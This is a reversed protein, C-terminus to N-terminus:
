LLARQLMRYTILTPQEDAKQWYFGREDHHLAAVRDVHDLLDTLRFTPNILTFSTIWDTLSKPLDTESGQSWVHIESAVICLQEIQLSSPGGLALVLDALDDDDLQVVPLIGLAKEELTQAVNTGLLKVTAHGLRYEVTNMKIEPKVVADYAKNLARIFMYRHSSSSVGYLMVLAVDLQKLMANITSNTM